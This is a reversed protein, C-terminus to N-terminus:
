RVTIEAVAELLLGHAAAHVPSRPAREEVLRAARLLANRDHDAAAVLDRVAFEATRRSLPRRFLALPGRTARMAAPEAWQLALTALRRAREVREDTV